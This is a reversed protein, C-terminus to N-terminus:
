KRATKAAIIDYCLQAAGFETLADGPRPAVEVVDAGILTKKQGLEFILNRTYQWGLGGQVPTGTAPMYAPDIGDVDITLYVKETTISNIVEEVAPTKETLWIFIPMKNEAMYRYEDESCARLGIQLTKLGAEHARRMVCCHAYKGAPHDSYDSDDDRMDAHADIQLLTIEEPKHKGLTEFIGISVSHEGGVTLVFKGNNFHNEFEGGVKKVMDAPALTNLDGLDDYAIKYLDCPSTKAFPHYFEIQTDLCARIAEPGKDAGKGFSSTKDYNAALLVVDAQSLDGCNIISQAM